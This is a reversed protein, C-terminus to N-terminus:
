AEKGIEMWVQMQGTQVAKEAMQRKKDEIDAQQKAEHEQKLWSWHGGGYLYLRNLAQTMADVEDDHTGNPFMACEHLMEEISPDIEPDPLHINGAEIFPQVAYARSIKGGEPNVAIIGAIKGQLTNIVATGNAKDEILKHHAQPFNSSVSRVSNVTASFDMREKLRYLLYSDAGCKGWVHCVVYDSGDTDKFACDWSQIVVDLTPVAKYFKWWARKFIAGEAPAPEQSYQGAFGYSGMIKRQAAIEKEGEREVWLLQDKERTITRKSIPFSYTKKKPEPNAIKLHEWGGHGLLHGTLDAEHLRQMILVIRGNIKDDLRTSLTQDYWDLAQKREADSAAKKPNHPDDIVIYDGGKGTLTGGVGTSFMRGRETNEYEDKVNQDESLQFKSGWLRQYWESQILNRRAVSHQTSLDAAYAAFVWKTSPKSAWVWTPWSITVLTSKMYRPPMNIILRTIQAADVAQLYESILGIHWNNLLTKGPEIIKWSAEVYSFLSRTLQQAAEERMLDQLLRLKAAREAANM